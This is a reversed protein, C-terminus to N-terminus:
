IKEFRFKAIAWLWTLPDRLVSVKKGEDFSRSRYNVPIEIPVYGKRALKIVLEYDFDFRNCEFRIRDLCDARFVKYMTFPDKLRLGYVLNLLTAFFWHGLNLAFSIVPQGAFRRMKWSGGGHRAGLVFAAEGSILPELLSDYDEIDYEDDADQILVFDGTIEAFGARVANGKGAPRDQLVVRVRERGEYSRVIDRTGDTSNSEVIILEIDVGDLQKALVREIGGAITQAENFAPMVLSLKPRARPELRKGITVIGGASVAVPLRRVPLPLVRALFKLVAAPTGISFREIHRSVYDLSLSKRAPFKRVAGFSETHLLRRLNAASFYWLHQRQFETWSAGMLRASLTDLSPGIAILLGGPRLRAHVQRLFARPDRRYGLQDVFVIFDFLQGDAPLNALDGTVVRGGAGLRRRAVDAVDAGPELGVVALGRAAARVLLDGEGCGIELLDGVPPQGLYREIVSLYGDATRSRLDSEHEQVAADRGHGAFRSRQSSRMQEDSPQPSLRMLGCAACAEVRAADLSFNYHIKGSGCIICPGTTV